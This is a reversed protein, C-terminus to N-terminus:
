AARHPQDAPFWRDIATQLRDPGTPSAVSTAVVIGALLRDIRATATFEWTSSEGPQPTFIMPGDVLKRLLQRAHATQRTLLSRWEDVRQRILTALVSKDVHGSQEVRRVGQLEARLADRRDERAKVAALLGALQGGSAIADSLRTIEQEVEGLSAELRGRRRSAEERAPGVQELARVVVAEVLDPDTIGM